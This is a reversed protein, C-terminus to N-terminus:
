GEGQRENGGARRAREAERRRRKSLTNSCRERDYLADRKPIFYRHCEPCRRITAAGALQDVFLFHYMAGLFSTHRWVLPGKALYFRSLKPSYVLSSTHNLLLWWHLCGDPTAAEALMRSPLEARIRGAAAEKEEASGRALLYAQRFLDIERSFDAIAIREKFKLILPAHWSVIPKGLEHHRRQIELMEPAELLRDTRRELWHHVMWRGSPPGDTRKLFREPLQIEAEDSRDWVGGLPQYLQGLLGLPGWCNLWELYDAVAAGNKEVFGTEAPDAQPPLTPLNLFGIALSRITNDGRGPEKLGPLFPFAPFEKHRQKKPM